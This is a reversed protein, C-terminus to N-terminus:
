ASCEQNTGYVRVMAPNETHVSTLIDFSLEKTSFNDLFVAPRAEVLASMLRKDLESEDHGSTFAAPRAGSAIICIAKLWGKVLLGKGTGAGSFSPADCLLGPATDLSQRCIRAGAHSEVVDSRHVFARQQIGSHLDRHNRNSAPMGAGNQQAMICTPGSLSIASGRRRNSAIRPTDQLSLSLSPVFKWTKTQKGLFTLTGLPNNLERSGARSGRAGVM